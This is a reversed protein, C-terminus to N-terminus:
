RGGLIIYLVWVMFVGFVFLTALAAIAIEKWFKLREELEQILHRIHRRENPM